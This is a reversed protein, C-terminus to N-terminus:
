QGNARQTGADVLRGTAGTALIEGGGARARDRRRPRPPKRRVLQRLSRRRAARTPCAGPPGFPGFPGFPSRLFYESADLGDREALLKLLKLEDDSLLLHFSNTREISM